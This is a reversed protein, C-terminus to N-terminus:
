GRKAAARCGRGRGEFCQACGCLCFGWANVGLPEEPAFGSRGRDARDHGAALRSESRAAEGSVGGATPVHM